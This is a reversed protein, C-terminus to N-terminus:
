CIYHKTRDEMSYCDMKELINEENFVNLLAFACFVSLFQDRAPLCVSVEVFLRKGQMVELCNM